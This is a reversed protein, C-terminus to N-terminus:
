TLSVLKFKDSTIIIKFEIGNIKFNNYCDDIDKYWGLDWEATNEPTFGERIVVHYTEDDLVLLGYYPIEPNVEIEYFINEYEFVLKKIKNKDINGM